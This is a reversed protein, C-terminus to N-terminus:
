TGPIDLPFLVQLHCRDLPPHLQDLAFSVKSTASLKHQVSPSVVQAGMCVNEAFHGKDIRRFSSKRVGRPPQFVPEPVGAALAYCASHWLPLDLHHFSSHHSSSCGTMLGESTAKPSHPCQVTATLNHAPHQPHSPRAQRPAASGSGPQLGPAPGLAGQNSFPRASTADHGTRAFDSRGCNKASCMQHCLPTWPAVASVVAESRCCPQTM